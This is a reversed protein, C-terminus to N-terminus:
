FDMFPIKIGNVARIKWRMTEKALQFTIPLAEEDSGLLYAKQDNNIVIMRFESLVTAQDDEVGIDLNGLKVDFGEFEEFGRKMLQKINLYALGLDDRYQLSFHEITGEIDKAEFAAEAKSLAKRIQREPSNWYWYGAAAVATVVAIGFLVRVDIKM